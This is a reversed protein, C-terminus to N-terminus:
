IRCELDKMMGLDDKSAGDKIKEELDEIRGGWTYIPMPNLGCEDDRFQVLWIYCYRGAPYGDRLKRSLIIFNGRDITKAKLAICHLCSECFGNALESADFDKLKAQNSLRTYLNKM